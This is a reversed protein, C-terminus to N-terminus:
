GWSAVVMDIGRLLCVTVLSYLDVVRGKGERRSRRCRVGWVGNGEFGLRAPMGTPVARATLPERQEHRRRRCRLHCGRRGPVLDGDGEAVATLHATGGRDVTRQPERSLGM